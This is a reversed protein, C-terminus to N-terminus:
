RRSVQYQHFLILDNDGESHARQLFLDIPADQLPVGIQHLEKRSEVFVVCLLWLSTTEM